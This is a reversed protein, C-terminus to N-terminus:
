IFIKTKMNYNSLNYLFYLLIRTFGTTKCVVGYLMVYINERLLTNKKFKMFKFNKPNQVNIFHGNKIYSIFNTFYIFIYM